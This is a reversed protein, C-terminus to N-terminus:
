TRASKTRKAQLFFTNMAFQTSMLFYPLLDDWAFWGTEQVGQFSKVWQRISASGDQFYGFSSVLDLDEVLWKRGEIMESRPVSQGTLDLYEAKVVDLGNKGVFLRFNAGCRPNVDLVKYKDDRKDYCYDFDVMGKYAIQKMFRTTIKEVIENELCIGLSTVGGYIPIQRIKKGIGGFLCESRSNFYGEFMWSSTVDGPIYEQLMFNPNSPDEYRDYLDLLESKTKALFMKQGSRLAAALGDIGKLMVPFTASKLYEEVDARSHPFSTEPTPFNNKKALFYMRKKDILSHVLERPNDPFIYWDRLRNAHDALFIASTDSTPVLLSHKGIRKGIGLLFQLTEEQPAADVDRVFKEKLYRSHLGAAMRSPGIGYIDVGWGGLSRAVDVGYHNFTKMIVVPVSTDKAVVKACNNRIRMNVVKQKSIRM